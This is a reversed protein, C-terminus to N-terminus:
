VLDRIFGRQRGPVQRYDLLVKFNLDISTPENGSESLKYSGSNALRGYTFDFLRQTGLRNNTRVVIRAYIEPSELNGFSAPLIAGVGPAAPPVYTVVMNESAGEPISYIELSGSPADFGYNVGAVYPVAAGATDDKVSTLACGDLFSGSTDLLQYIGPVVGMFRAPSPTAPAAAVYTEGPNAMYMLAATFSTFTRLKIKLESQVDVAPSAIIAHLSDENSKIDMFEIKNDVEVEADGMNVLPGIANLSNQDLIQALVQCRPISYFKPAVPRFITTM